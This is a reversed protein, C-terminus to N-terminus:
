HPFEYENGVRIDWHNRAGLAKLGSTAFVDNARFDTAFEFRRLRSIGPITPQFRAQLMDLLTQWLCSGDMFSSIPLRLVELKPALCPQDNYPILQSINTNSILRPVHISIETLHPFKELSRELDCPNDYPNSEFVDSHARVRLFKLGPSSHPLLASFCHTDPYDVTFDELLPMDLSEMAANSSGFFHFWAVRLNPLVVPTDTELFIYGALEIRLIRLNTLQRYSAAREQYPFWTCNSECYRTLQSWPIQSQSDPPMYINGLTLNTLNPAYPLSFHNTSIFTMKRLAQLDGGSQCLRDVLALPLTVFEIEQWRRSHKLLAELLIPAAFDPPWFRFSLPRNGTRELYGELYDLHAAIKVDEADIDGPVQWHVLRPTMSRAEFSGEVGDAFEPLVPLEAFGEDCSRLVFDLQSPSCHARRGSSPGLDLVAWLQGLSLAITRWRRCIQGLSWPLRVKTPYLKGLDRFDRPHIISPVFYLFIEAIIEPPVHRIPSLVCNYQTLEAALDAHKRRLARLTFELQSIEVGLVSLEAQQDRLIDKVLTKQFVSPADNSRLLPVLSVPPSRGLSNSKEIIAM